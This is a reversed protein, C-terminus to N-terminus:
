NETVNNELTESETRGLEEGNEDVYVWTITYQKDMATGINNIYDGLLEKAREQASNLLTEDNSATEKLNAQAEKFAATEAEATVDASDKAVIFSDKTLTEEDVKCELIKAPPLTVTVQTDEIEVNVLSADIGVTVIGSYEIWFYM